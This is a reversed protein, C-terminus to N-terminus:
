KDEHEKLRISGQRMVKRWKRTGGDEAPMEDWEVIGLERLRKLRFSLVSTSTTDTLLCLEKLSPGVYPRERRWDRIVLALRALPQTLAPATPNAHPQRQPM